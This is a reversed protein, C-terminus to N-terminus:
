SSQSLLTSAVPDQSILNQAFQGALGQLFRRRNFEHTETKHQNKKM